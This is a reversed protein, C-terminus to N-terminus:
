SKSAAAQMMKDHNGGAEQIL